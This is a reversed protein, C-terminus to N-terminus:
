RALSESSHFKCCNQELEESQKTTAATSGSTNANVKSTKAIVTSATTSVTITSTSSSSASNPDTNTNGSTPSTDGSTASTDESPTSTNRSTTSTNGSTTSTNNPTTSAKAPDTNAVTNSNLVTLVSRTLNMGSGELNEEVLQSDAVSISDIDSLTDNVDEDDVFPLGKSASNERSTGVLQQSGDAEVAPNSFVTDVTPFLALDKIEVNTSSGDAAKRAEACVLINESQSAEDNNSGASASLDLSPKKVAKRDQVPSPKKGPPRHHKKPTTGACSLLTSTNNGM